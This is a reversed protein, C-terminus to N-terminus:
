EVRIRYGANVAPPHGLKTRLRSINIKEANYVPDAAEDWVWELLEGATVTAGRSAVRLKLVGFEKPALDLESGGRPLSARRAM